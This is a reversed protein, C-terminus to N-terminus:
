RVIVYNVQKVKSLESQKRQVDSLMREYETREELLKHQTDALESSKSEHQRKLSDLEQQELGLMELVHKLESKQRYAPPFSTVIMHQSRCNRLTTCFYAFVKHPLHVLLFAYYFNM